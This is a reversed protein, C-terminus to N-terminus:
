WSNEFHIRGPHHGGGNSNRNSYFDYNWPAAGIQNYVGGTRDTGSTRRGENHSIHDVLKIGYTRGRATFRIGVEWENDTYRWNTLTRHGNLM